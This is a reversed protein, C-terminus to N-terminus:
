AVAGSTSYITVPVIYSEAFLTTIRVQTEKRFDFIGAFMKKARSFLVAFRDAMFKAGIVM